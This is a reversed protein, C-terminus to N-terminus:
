YKDQLGLEMASGEFRQPAEGHVVVMMNSAASSTIRFRSPSAQEPTTTLKCIVANSDDCVNIRGRAVEYLRDLGAEAELKGDAGVGEGQLGLAHVPGNLGFCAGIAPENAMEVLPELRCTLWAGLTITFRAVARGDSAGVLSLSPTSLGGSAHLTTAAEEGLPECKESGSVTWVLGSPVNTPAIGKTGDLLERSKGYHTVRAQDVICRLQGFKHHQLTCVGDEFTVGGNEPAVDVVVQRAGAPPLHQDRPGAPPLSDSPPM